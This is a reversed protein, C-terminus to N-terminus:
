ACAPLAPALKPSNFRCMQDPNLILVGDKRVRWGPLTKENFSWKLTHLLRGAM